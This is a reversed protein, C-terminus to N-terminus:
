AVEKVTFKALARQVDPWYYRVCRASIRICPIKKQALWNNVTRKSVNTKVAIQATNSLGYDGDPLEKM